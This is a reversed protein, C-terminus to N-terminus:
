IRGSEVKITAIGEFLLPMVRAFQLIATLKRQLINCEKDEGKYVEAAEEEELDNLYLLDDKDEGGKAIAEEAKGFWSIVYPLAKLTQEGEADWEFLPEMDLNPHYKLIKKIAVHSKNKSSINIRVLSM